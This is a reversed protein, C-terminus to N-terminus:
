AMRAENRGLTFIEEFQDFVLVPAVRELTSSRLGSDRRHLYQWLSEDDRAMPSPTTADDKAAVLQGNEIAATIAERIFQRTQAILANPGFGGLGDAETHSLRIYVPLWGDARLRPFLGAQLLSSKGLGSQGYLVTLLRHRVMSLLLDAEAERGHFFTQSSESLYDLGPWPNEADIVVPDAPGHKLSM